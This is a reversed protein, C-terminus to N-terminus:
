LVHYGLLGPHGKQSYVQQHTSATM